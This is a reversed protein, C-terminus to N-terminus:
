GKPQKALVVLRGLLRNKAADLDALRAMLDALEGATVAAGGPSDPGLSRALGESVEGLETVLDALLTMPHACTGPDAALVQARYWAAIPAAHGAALCAMDLALAQRLPIERDDDPDGWYRVLRASKGTVQAAGDDGVIALVQTVADWLSAPPRVKPM